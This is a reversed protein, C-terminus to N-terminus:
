SAMASTWRTLLFKDALERKQKADAAIEHGGSGGMLRLHELEDEAHLAARELRSWEHLRHRLLDM